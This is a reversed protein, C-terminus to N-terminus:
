GPQINNFVGPPLNQASIILNWAGRNLYGYMINSLNFNSGFQKNLNNLVVPTCPDTIYPPASNPSTQTSTGGGGGSGSGPNVTTPPSLPTQNILPPDEGTDEVPVQVSYLLGQIVLPSGGIAQSLALDIAYEAFAEDYAFLGEYSFYGLTDDLADNGTPDV